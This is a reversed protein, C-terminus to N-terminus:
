STQTCLNFDQLQRCAQADQERKDLSPEPRDISQGSSAAGQLVAPRSDMVGRQSANSRHDPLISVNCDHFRTHIIYGYQDHGDCSQPAAMWGTQM